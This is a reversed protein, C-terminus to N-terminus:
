SKVECDHTKIANIFMPDEVDWRAGCVHCRVAYSTNEATGHLIMRVLAFVGLPILVIALAQLWNEVTM